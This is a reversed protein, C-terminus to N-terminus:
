SGRYTTYGFPSLLLPVHYHQAADRVEFTIEVSPYFAAVHRGAFYAGTEFRLRYTGAVLKGEPLLSSVRGDADTMGRGIIKWAGGAHTELVVTIGQAPRGASTDLIHTTISRSM